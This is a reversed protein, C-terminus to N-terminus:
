RRGRLLRRLPDSYPQFPKPFTAIANAVNSKTVLAVPADVRAPLRAGHSVAVCSEVAMQGMVYPYQSVTASLSGERVADLAEPIGDLGIIAVDDAKGAARVADAVGLAMLDNAAFFGDLGPHRELIQAAVIQAKTREYDANVREVVRLRTGRIGREFGGLRLPALISHVRGGLLAVDGTGHLVFAMRAGALRGAAFDDTGIYIGIRVGARRAAARDIPSNVNVVPRSVGRLAAVLNTATVPAVAYCDNKRAVLARVEAAQGAPDSNTAPARISAQVDLRKAEARIGEFIAVWFPNDLSNLVVGMRVPPVPKAGVGGVVMLVAAVAVTAIQLARM